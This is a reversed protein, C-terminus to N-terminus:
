VLKDDKPGEETKNPPTSRNESFSQAAKALLVGLLTGVLGVMLGLEKMDKGKINMYLWLATILCTLGIATFVCLSVLLRMNSTESECSLSDKFIKWM